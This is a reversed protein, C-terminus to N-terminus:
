REGPDEIMEGSRSAGRRREGRVVPVSEARVVVGNVLALARRDGYTWREQQEMGAVVREVRRPDGWSMRAQEATMGLVVRGDEIATWVDAPWDVELRPDETLFAQDFTNQQRLAEPVNTGTIHVDRFGLHGAPARVIFRVPAATSWGPVVDVVEVPAFRKVPRVGVDAAGVGPTRLNPEALWLTKGKWQSRASEIDALPALDDISGAVPRATYEQKTDPRVLTVVPDLRDYKVGTVKLLAGAAEEHSPHRTIKDRVQLSRYEDRQRSRPRALVVFTEGVWKDISRPPPAEVRLPQTQFTFAKVLREDGRRLTLGVIVRAGPALTEFFARGRRAATERTLLVEDSPLVWDDLVSGPGVHSVWPVSEREPTLDGRHVLRRLKGGPDLLASEDWDIELRDAFTSEFRISLAQLGSLNLAADHLAVQTYAFTWVGLDDSVSIRGGGTYTTVTHYPPAVQPLKAPDRETDRVYSVTKTLKLRGRGGEPAALKLLQVIEPPPPSPLRAPESASPRVVFATPKLVDPAWDPLLTKGSACGAVVLALVIPALASM